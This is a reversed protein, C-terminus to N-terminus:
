QVSCFKSTPSCSLSVQQAVQLPVKLKEVKDAAAIVTGNIWHEPVLLQIYVCGNSFISFILWLILSECLNLRAYEEVSQDSPCCLLSSVPVSLPPLCLANLTHYLSSVVNCSLHLSYLISLVRARTISASFLILDSGDPNKNCWWIRM